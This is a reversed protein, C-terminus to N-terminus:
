PKAGFREALPAVEAVQSPSLRSRWIEPLEDAVRAREIGRGPRNLRALTRDADATWELALAQSLTRFGAPPDDCLDEHRVVIWGPNRGAAERLSLDLMGLLWAGRVLPSAGREPVPVGHTTALRQQVIPDLGDLMDDGPTGIWELEVWSSLVNLLDRVVIVVGAPFRAAIWEISLAAYVSKVVVHRAGPSPIEPVALAAAARLKSAIRTPDRFARQVENHSVTRWIGAALRRRARTALPARRGQDGSGGFAERWLLEYEAADEDPPLATYFRGPLRHKARFAFPHMLHNDPEELYTSDKASGLLTAVWTTGSRPVGVVIVRSM